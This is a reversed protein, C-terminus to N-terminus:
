NTNVQCLGQSFTLVFLFILVYTKTNWFYSLCQLARYAPMEDLLLGRIELTLNLALLLDLYMVIGLDILKKLPSIKAM